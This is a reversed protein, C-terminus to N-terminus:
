EASVNLRFNLRDELAGGGFLNIKSFFSLFELEAGIHRVNM